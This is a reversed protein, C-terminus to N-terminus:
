KWTYVESRLSYTQVKSIHVGYKNCHIFDDNKLYVGSHHIRGKNDFFLVVDGFLPTDTKKMGTMGSTFSVNHIDTEWNDTESLKRYLDPMSHGLRKEVEIVLGYCDFGNPGRGHAKYPKGLLDTIDILM